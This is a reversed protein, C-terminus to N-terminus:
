SAAAADQDGTWSKARSGSDSDRGSTSSDSAALHTFAPDVTGYKAAADWPSMAPRALEVMEKLRNTPMAPEDPPPSRHQASLKQQISVSPEATPEATTADDDDDASVTWSESKAQRKAFLRAGKGKMNRLDDALNFCMQIVVICSIIFVADVTYLSRM